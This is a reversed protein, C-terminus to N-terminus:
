GVSLERVSASRMLESGSLAGPDTGVGRQVPGIMFRKLIEAAASITAARAEVPAIAAVVVVLVTVLVVAM